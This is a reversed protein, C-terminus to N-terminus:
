ALFVWRAYLSAMWALLVGSGLLTALPLFRALRASRDAPSASSASDAVESLRAAVAAFVPFAVLVYRGMGVFDPTSVAAMGVAVLVYAGYGRGFRRVISPVLALAGVTFLGQVTLWFTVVNLGYDRWRFYFNAKAVTPLDITRYWGTSAGVKLFAFPERFRHWLYLSFLALGLGSVLVGAERLRLRSWVIRRPFWGPGEFVGRLELARLVLGIVLAVGVPRCATAVAGALGALWPRDRELLSFAALASVLFLADSYVAGFLYFAFPYLLLLALALRATRVGLFGVCWRYFLAAAGAGCALTVLVGGIIADGVVWGAARITFPYAPFFAVASQQGPGNYFYGQKAIAYYWGSDYRAFVDLWPHRPWGHPLAKFTFVATSFRFDLYVAVAVLTFLGLAFRTRATTSARRRDTTAPSTM